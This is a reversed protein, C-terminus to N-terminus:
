SSNVRCLRLLRKLTRGGWGRAGGWPTIGEQVLTVRTHAGGLDGGHEEGRQQVRQLDAIPLVAVGVVVLRVGGIDGLGDM